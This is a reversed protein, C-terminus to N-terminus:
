MYLYYVVEGDQEKRRWLKVGFYKLFNPEGKLKIRIARGKESGEVIQAERFINYLDPHVEDLKKKLEEESYM